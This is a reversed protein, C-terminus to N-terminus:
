PVLLSAFDPTYKRSLGYAGAASRVVLASSIALIISELLPGIQVVYFWALSMVGFSISGISQAVVLIRIAMRLSFSTVGKSAEPSPRSRRFSPGIGGGGLCGRAEISAFIVRVCWSLGGVCSFFLAADFVFYANPEALPWGLNSCSTWLYRAFAFSAAILLGSRALPSMPGFKWSDLIAMSDSRGREVLTSRRNEASPAAGIEIGSMDTAM